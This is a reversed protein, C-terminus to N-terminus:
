ELGIKSVGDELLFYGPGTSTTGGVGMLALFSPKTAGGSGELTLFSTPILFEIVRLLVSM